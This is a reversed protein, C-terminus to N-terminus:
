AAGSLRCGSGNPRIEVVNGEDEEVGVDDTSKLPPVETRDRGLSKAAYLASDASRMLLDQTDGDGPYVAIGFSITLSMGEAAFAERVSGRIREAM